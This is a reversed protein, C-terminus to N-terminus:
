IWHMAYHWKQADLCKAFIDAAQQETPCHQIMIDPEKFADYLGHVNIKHTKGLHPLRASYGNRIAQITATNDQHCMIPVQEGFLNALFEQAPM